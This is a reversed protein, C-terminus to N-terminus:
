RGRPGAEGGYASLGKVRALFDGNARKRSIERVLYDRAAPIGSDVSLRQLSDLAMQAGLNASGMGSAFSGEARAGGDLATGNAAIWQAAGALAASWDADASRQIRDFMTLLRKLQFARGAQMQLLMAVHEPRGEVSGDEWEVCTVAFSLVEADLDAAAFSQIPLTVVETGGVAVLPPRPPLDETIGVQGNRATMCFARVALAGDNVLTVRLDADIGAVHLRLAPEAAPTAPAPCLFVLFLLGTSAPTGRQRSSPKERRGMGIKEKEVSVLWRHV